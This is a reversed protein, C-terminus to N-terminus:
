LLTGSSFMSGFTLVTFVVVSRWAMDIGSWVYGLFSIDGRRMRTEVDFEHLKNCDIPLDRHWTTRRCQKTKHIETDDYAMLPNRNYDDDFAYYNDISDDDEPQLDEYREDEEFDHYITRRQLRLSEEEPIHIELGGLDRRLAELQNEEDLSSTPLHFATPKKVNSKQMRLKTPFVLTDTSPLGISELSRGHRNMTLPAVVVNSAQIKALDARASWFPASTVYRLRSQSVLLSAITASAVM